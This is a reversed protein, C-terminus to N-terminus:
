SAGRRYTIRRAPEGFVPEIGLRALAAPDDVDQLEAATGPGGLSEAEVLETGPASSLFRLSREGAAFRERAELLASFSWRAVLPQAKGAAVPLVSHSGPWRALSGILEPTLGPLDCALVLAPVKVSASELQSAAAAVAGLPGLGRELEDVRQLSTFGPGVEMVPWACPSLMRALRSAIPEGGIVLMAKDRGM